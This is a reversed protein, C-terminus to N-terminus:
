QAEAKAGNRDEAKASGGDDDDRATGGTVKKLDDITLKKTVAGTQKTINKM